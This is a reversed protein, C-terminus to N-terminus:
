ASSLDPWLSGSGPPWMYTANLRFNLWVHTKMYKCKLHLYCIVTVKQLFVNQGFFWWSGTDLPGSYNIINVRVNQEPWRINIRGSFVGHQQHCLQFLASISV